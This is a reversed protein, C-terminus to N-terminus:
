KLLNQLNILDEPTGCGIMRDVDYIKVKKNDQIFENWVLEWRTGIECFLM